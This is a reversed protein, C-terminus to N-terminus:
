MHNRYYHASGGGGPGFYNYDGQSYEPIYPNMYPENRREALGRNAMAHLGQAAEGPVGKQSLIAVAGGTKLQNIKFNEEKIIQIAKNINDEDKGAITILTPRRIPSSAQPTPDRPPPRSNPHQRRYYARPSDRYHQGELLGFEDRYTFYPPPPFRTPQPPPQQIIIPQVQTSAPIPTPVPTPTDEKISKKHSQKKKEQKQWGQLFHAIGVLAAWKNQQKLTIAHHEKSLSIEYYCSGHNPCDLDKCIHRVFIKQRIYEQAPLNMDRAAKEQLQRNTTSDRLKLPLHSPLELNDDNDQQTNDIEETFPDDDIDISTLRTARMTHPKAKGKNRGRAGNASLPPTKQRDFTRYIVETYIKHYIKQDRDGDKEMQRLTTLLGLWSEDDDVYISDAAKSSGIQKIYKTYLFARLDDFDDRITSNIDITKSFTKEKRVDDIVPTMFISMNHPVEQEISPDFPPPPPQIAKRARKPLPTSNLPTSQLVVPDSPITIPTRPVPSNAIDPEPVDIPAEAQKKPIKRQPVLSQSAYFEALTNRNPRRARKPSKEPPPVRGQLRKSSRAPPM